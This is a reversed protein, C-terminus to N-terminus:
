KGLLKEILGLRWVDQLSILAMLILLFAMGWSNVKQEIESSIRKRFILELWIFLLRGGDLAPIPLINFVALNVSLVAILELLPLWGESAVIGTLQYIGVPGSVGQPAKGAVLSKGIMRLGDVVRGIWIGTSKIGQGTAKITCQLNYITCKQTVLFPYDAITVGLAGQNKPPNKRPTVSIVEKTVTGQSIGEFLPTTPGREITLNVKLGAWSKMLTGFQDVSLVDKGEVKIIRDEFKIGATEAPTGPAVQVVTVESRSSVPVGAASYLVGFAVLALVINMFVGAAVVLMRPFIGRSWYDRGYDKTGKEQKVESEEGYLRVFGGFLLPYIAYQTERTKIKLLPRTFPLGIAFEEVKIGLLKAMLFHGLEHVLVLISLVLLFVLWTPM